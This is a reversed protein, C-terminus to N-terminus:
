DWQMGPVIPRSIMLTEPQNMNWEAHLLAASICSKHYDSLTLLQLWETGAHRTKRVFYVVSVSPVIPRLQSNSSQVAPLWIPVANQSFM